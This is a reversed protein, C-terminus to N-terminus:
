WNVWVQVKNFKYKPMMSQEKFIWDVSKVKFTTEGLEVGNNFKVVGYPMEINDNVSPAQPMVTQIDKIDNSGFIIEVYIM